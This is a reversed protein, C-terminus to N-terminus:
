TTRVPRISTSAALDNPMTGFFDAHLNGAVITSHLLTNAALGYPSTFIGGGDSQSTNGTITSHRVEALGDNSIGAGGGLYNVNGSITSGIVLLNSHRSNSIGAFGNNSITSDRITLEGGRILSPPSDDNYLGQNSAGGSANGSLTSNQITLTGGENRVGEGFNDSILSDRIYAFSTNSLGGGGFGNGVENDRITSGRILLSSENAIGGGRTESRNGSITSDILSLSGQYSNFIGGGEAARSDSITSNVITLQEDNFIAGVATSRCLRM